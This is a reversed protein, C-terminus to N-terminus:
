FLRPTELQTEVKEIKMKLNAHGIHIKGRKDQFVWLM